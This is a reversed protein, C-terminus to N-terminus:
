RKVSKCPRCSCVHWAAVSHHFLSSQLLALLLNSAHDVHVDKDMMTHYSTIHTAYKQNRQIQVNWILQMGSLWHGQLLTGFLHWDM